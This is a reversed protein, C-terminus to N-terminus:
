PARLARVAHGRHRPRADVQLAPRARRRQRFRGDVRSASGHGPERSPSPSPGGAPHYHFATRGPLELPGDDVRDAGRPSGRAGDLREGEALLARAPDRYFGGGDAIRALDSRAGAADGDRLRALALYWEAPVRLESGPSRVVRELDDVALRSQGLALRCVGAYFRATADEPNHA